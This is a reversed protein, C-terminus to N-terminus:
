AMRDFARNYAQQANALERKLLSVEEYLENCERRARAEGGRAADLERALRATEAVRPDVWLQWVTGALARTYDRESPPPGVAHPMQLQAAALAATLDSLQGCAAGASPERYLRNDRAGSM